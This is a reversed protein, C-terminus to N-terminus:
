KLALKRFVVNVIAMLEQGIKVEGGGCYDGILAYADKYARQLDNVSARVNMPNLTRLRSNIRGIHAREPLLVCIQRDRLPALQDVGLNVLDQSEVIHHAQWGLYNKDSQQFRKLDSYTGILQNANTLFVGGFNAKGYKEYKIGAMLLIEEVTYM